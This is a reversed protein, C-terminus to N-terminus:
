SEARKNQKLQELQFNIVSYDLNIADVMGHTALKVVSLVNGDEIQQTKGTKIRDIWLASYFGAITGLRKIDDVKFHKNKSLIVTGAMLKVVSESYTIDLSNTDGVRWIKNDPYKFDIKDKSYWQNFRKLPLPVFKISIKEQTFFTELLEKIFSSKKHTFAYQPYYDIDEVGITYQSKNNALAIFSLFILIVITILKIM